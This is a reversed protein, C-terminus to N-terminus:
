EHGNEKPQAALAEMKKICKPCTPAEKDWEGWGASKRGPQKGCLAKYKEWDVAHINGSLDSGSRCRGSLTRFKIM